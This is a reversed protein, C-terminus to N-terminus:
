KMTQLIRLVRDVKDLYDFPWALRQPQVYPLAVADVSVVTDKDRPYGQLGRDVIATAQLNVVTRKREEKIAGRTVAIRAKAVIRTPILITPSM